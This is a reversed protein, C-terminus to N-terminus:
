SMYLKALAVGHALIFLPVTFNPALVMPFQFVIATDPKDNYIRLPSPVSLFMSFGAGLFAAIGVVHWVILLQHGIPATAAFISLVVASVAFLFDPTSGLIDPCNAKSTSSSRELPLCAFCM